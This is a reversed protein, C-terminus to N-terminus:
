LVLGLMAQVTDNPMGYNVYMFTYLPQLFADGVGSLFQSLYQDGVNKASLKFLIGVSASIMFLMLLALPKTKDAAKFLTAKTGLEFVKSVRLGLYGGAAGIVMSGFFGWIDHNEMEPDFIIAELMYMYSNVTAGELMTRITTSAMLDSLFAFHGSPDSYIIPNANAFIYKNLSIPQNWYGAFSDMSAFTGTSPNMYRARLYYLGTADEQEGQFKYDNGSYGTHSIEQGFAKFIYKDTIAGNEDTLARVSLIGDLLYFYMGDNENRSILYNGRVFFTENGESSSVLIQSIGSSYDLTYYTTIGDTTKTTRDGLYNYTYKEKLVNMMYYTNSEIMQNRSNYKYNSIQAGQNAVSVLNGADDYLYIIDDSEILQNLSNYTYNTIEGDKNMSTRNSNLDYTYSTTSVDGGEEISESTLRGLKDYTYSVTRSGENVSLKEGNAGLSYEYSLIVDDNSNISVQKVLLDVSNYEYTTTVGNPYSTEILNGVKDYSYTTANGNNYKVSVIRGAKDYGYEVTGEKTALTILNGLEDYSYYITNGRADKKSALYGESTYVYSITGDLDQVSKLSGISNYEYTIVGEEYVIQQVRGHSDYMYLTLNGGFDTQSIIQGLANYEVTATKGAANTTCILRGYNDYSYTTSYGLPCVSETINGFSDYTYSWTSGTADTVSVLRDMSDYSYKTENGEADTEFLMRGRVDYGWTYTIGNPYKVAIQNGAKDYEFIYTYNNANTISAIQGRNTYTYRTENGFVDIIATNQGKADYEYNTTGCISDQTSILRNCDDYYYAIENGSSYTAKLLNGAADYSFLTTRGMRDTASINQGELDYIFIETTGDSYQINTCHGFVDYSYETRNGLSDTKSIRNGVNDYIYGETTGDSYTIQTIRDFSDYSYRDSLTQGNYTTARSIPRGISDYTYTTVSGEANTLSILQNKENYSANYLTGFNDSLSTLCGSSDYEYEQTNGGAGSASVVNGHENYELVLEIDGCASMTLLKGEATYTNEYTRGQEDTISLLDNSASYNYTLLRGMANTETKLNHNEDYTKRTTHGLPDTETLISGFDDYTYITSYGLRNTVVETKAELCHVFETRNGAADIVAILRGTDDYENRSVTIGRPDTITLLYHSADYTFSVTEGSIDTVQKLDGNENYQYTVKRGSPDTISTVRGQADRSIQVTEGNSHYIGDADFTLQTGNTYDIRLIGNQDHLHYVTGDAKTLTYESPNYVQLDATYLMGANYILGTTEGVAELKSTTGSQAQYTAAIGFSIPAFPQRNPTLVLDFKELQGNGWDVIIEHPKSEGIQYYLGLGSGSSEQTWNTGPIVAESLKVGSISLNWGYGFDGSTARNRSDYGRAITVPSGDIPVTMDVFAISFNGIKMQGEVLVVVDSIQAQGADDYGSVRITYWGNNLMTPDFTGLTGNEVPETGRAIETFSTADIPAYSLTYYSLNTESISGVIDTPKTIVQGDTLGSFSVEPLEVPAETVQVTLTVTTANEDPDTATVKITHLGVTEATYTYIGASELVTGGTSEVSVTVSGSDDSASILLLSSEGIALVDKELSAELVPPIAQPDIVLIEKAVQTVNGSTDTAVATLTVHGADALIQSYTLDPALRVKTDDISLTVDKIAVNDSATISATLTEGLNYTDKDTTLTLNPKVADQDIVTLITTSSVSSNGDSTTLTLEYDGAASVTISPNNIFANSFSVRSDTCTWTFDLKRGSVFADDTAFACLKYPVNKSALATQPLAVVPILNEPKQLNYPKSAITIEDLKPSYGDKSRTLRVELRVYRGAPLTFDDGNNVVVQESFTVNDTSTSVLVEIFGDNYVESKWSIKGWETGDEESDYVASWTASTPAGTLTSGTMDSYNYLIGDIKPSTYIVEGLPTVGDSSIPGKNPDIKQIYGSHCVVWIYGESDVAIGTPGAQVTITGLYTGDSKLRGITSRYLSHAIWINDNQDAACGQAYYNGQNYTGILTGDPSYKRIKSGNAHSTNWVNGESDITLGYSPASYGTWNGGNPGTLPKSTDWRMLPNASWIVGNEDILGGYGGFGVGGETRLIAGTEGDLLVFKRNATGSVWVNNDADVSIHRTGGTPVKIYLLICEDEATSVGGLSDAKGTNSWALVDGMGISTDCKGNGNKDIWGGNEYLGIKVVSSGDRNAVWVNGDHDVTTRSPNAGMGAPASRFEGMIECTQTNIKLVTGKSSNAVWMFNLVSTTGDIKLADNEPVANLFVGEQFDEATTYIKYSADNLVNVLMTDSTTLLGDFAQLQLVYLGPVPFTVTSNATHPDAFIAEGPGTLMQWTLEPEPLLIADDSVTGALTYTESVYIEADAGANVVPADNIPLFDDPAGVITVSNCNLEIRDAIIRGNLTLTSSTIKVTGNPAYLIGNMVFDSGNITIDGNQSYVIFKDASTVASTDIGLKIDQDAIVYCQGSLKSSNFMFSGTTQLAVNSFADKKKFTKDQTYQTGNAARALINAGLDPMAIPAINPNMSDIVVSSGNCDTTLVTDSSGHVNLKSGAFRFSNGSYIDGTIDGSACHMQCNSTMSASFLTYALGTKDLVLPPVATPIGTPNGTPSTAEPSTDPASTPTGTPNSSPEATPTSTPAAPAGSTESPVGTAPPTQTTGSPEQGASSTESTQTTTATTEEGTAYSSSIRPGAPAASVSFSIGNITTVMISVSLFLSLLKMTRM